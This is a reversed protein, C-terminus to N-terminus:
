PGVCFEIANSFGTTQNSTNFPDRYWFQAQVLAGAGPNHNPKPCTPCWTGNVDQTFSGDCTGASSSGSLLGLRRVPPVVCRFSTGSGWPKAQRGNTGFFFLGDKDGEVTAVTLDFGSGATASATGSASVLAQCGSASIGATCYTPSSLLCKGAAGAQYLEMVETESLARGYVSLEDLDGRLFRNPTGGGSGYGLRLPRVNNAPSSLPVAGHPAGDVYLRVTDDDPNWTGAVHHWAEDLLSSSSPAAAFNVNPPPGGKGVVFYLRGDSTVGQLAWGTNDVWGHSKDVVSYQSQPQSIAAKLWCEVTFGTNPNPNLSDHNPVTVRDDDSDFTFTLGVKGTVYIPAGAVSAAATCGVEDVASGEARWWSVIGSPAEICQARAQGAVVAVAVLSMLTKMALEKKRRNFLPGHPAAM